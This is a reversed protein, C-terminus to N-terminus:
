GDPFVEMMRALLAADAPAGAGGGAVADADTGDLGLCTRLEAPTAAWFEGPRWGLVAAAVRAARLAAAAFTM